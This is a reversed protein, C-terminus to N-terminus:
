LCGLTRGGKCATATQALQANVPTEGLPADYAVAEALSGPGPAMSSVVLMACLTLAAAVLVTDFVLDTRNRVPESPPPGASGAERVLGAPTLDFIWALTAAIPFGLIGLVVVLSNIWIPLALAPVVIESIQFVLWIVISYVLMARCVKRDRLERILHYLGSGRQMKGASAPALAPQTTKRTSGYVPAVLRYGRNPVTGIYSATRASDGFYRRLRSVCRRLCASADAENPWLQRALEERGVVRCPRELLTLLL